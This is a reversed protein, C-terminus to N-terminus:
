GVHKLLCRASPVTQQEWVQSCCTMVALSTMSMSGCPDNVRRGSCFMTTSLTAFKCTQLTVNEQSVCQPVQYFDAELDGPPGRPRTGAV